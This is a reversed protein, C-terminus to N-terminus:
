TLFPAFFWSGLRSQRGVVRRLFNKQGSVLKLYETIVFSLNLAYNSGGRILVELSFQRFTTPLGRPIPNVSHDFDFQWADIFVIIPLDWACKTHQNLQIKHLFPNFYNNQHNHMNEVTLNVMPVNCVKIHFLRLCSSLNHIRLHHHVIRLTDM